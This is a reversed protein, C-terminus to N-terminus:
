SSPGTSSPTGQYQYHLLPAGHQFMNLGAHSISRLFHLTQIRVHHSHDHSYPCDAETGVQEDHAIDPQDPHLTPVSFFTLVFTSASFYLFSLAVRFIMNHLCNHPLHTTPVICTALTCIYKHSSHMNKGVYIQEFM